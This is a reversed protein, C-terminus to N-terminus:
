KNFVKNQYNLHKLCPNYNKTSACSSLWIMAFVSAAILCIFLKTHKM